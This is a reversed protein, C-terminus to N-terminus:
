IKLPWIYWDTRQRWNDVWFLVLRLAEPLSRVDLTGRLRLEYTEKPDILSEDLVPLDHIASLSELAEDLTSHTSQEGSNLNRLLYRESLAHFVVEYRQELTAVGDDLWWNRSRVLQLELELTLAVGDRVAQRAGEPMVFHLRANLLYVGQAPVVYASRIEFREPAALSPHACLLMLVGVSFIKIAARLTGVM